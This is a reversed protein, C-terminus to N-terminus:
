VRSFSTQGHKVASPSLCPYSYSGQRVSSSRCSSAAELPHRYTRARRPHHPSILESSTETELEDPLVHFSPHRDASRYFPLDHRHALFFSPSHFALPSELPTPCPFTLQGCHYAPLTKSIPHAYPPNSPFCISCWRLSLWWQFHWRPCQEASTLQLWLHHPYQCSRILMRDEASENIPRATQLPVHNDKMVQMCRSLAFGPQWHLTVISSVPEPKANSKGSEAHVIFWTSPEVTSVHVLFPLKASQDHLELCPPTAIWM